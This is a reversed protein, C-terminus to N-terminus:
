DSKKHQSHLKQFRRMTDAMGEIASFKTRIDLSRFYEFNELNHKHWSLKISKESTKSKSSM